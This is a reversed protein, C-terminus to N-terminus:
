GVAVSWLKVAKDNSCSLLISDDPSWCVFSLAQRHGRLTHLIEGTAIDYIHVTTDKSASALKTGDNSFRM